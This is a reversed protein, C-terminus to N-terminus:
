NRKADASKIGVETFEGIEPNENTKIVEGFSVKENFKSDGFSATQDNDM